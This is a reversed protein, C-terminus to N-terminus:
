LKKKNIYYSKYSIIYLKSKLIVYNNIYNQNQLYFNFILFM